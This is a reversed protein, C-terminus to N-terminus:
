KRSAAGSGKEFSRLGQLVALAKSLETSEPVLLDPGIGVQDIIHGSPTRYKGVTIELKSGDSLTIVEQVSGKGYSQEGLIVARNRDQLAGALAEAASATSRNILVTMPAIDPNSNTSTLVIDSEGKRSYSVVTGQNLFLSGLSQAQAILGGPNDRLDLVIGRDHQYKQLATTVDETVNATMASVQIYIVGPSIQNAVVDGSLVSARTVSAQFSKQNRSMSISVLTGANGRLAAVATAVSSGDMSVGNIENVTDLVKMGAKAAPSNPSISSVELVGSSNKRLWIGIGSYRGQLSQTFIKATQTPFYNAWQDGTAKLVADIAARQLVDKSAGRADKTLVKSIAEDVPSKHRAQGVQDGVAFALIITISLFAAGSNFKSGRYNRAVQSLWTRPTSM